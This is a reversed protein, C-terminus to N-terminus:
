VLKIINNYQSITKNKFSHSIAERALAALDSDVPTLFLPNHLQWFIVVCPLGGGKKQSV